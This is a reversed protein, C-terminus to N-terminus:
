IHITKFGIVLYTFYLIIESFILFIYVCLFNRGSYVLFRGIHVELSVLVCLPSFPLLSKIRLIATYNLIGWFFILHDRLLYELALHSLVPM